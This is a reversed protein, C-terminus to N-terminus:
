VWFYGWIITVTLWGKRVTVLWLVKTWKVIEGSGPGSNWDFASPFSFFSFLFCGSIMKNKVFGREDLFKLGFEMQGDVGLEECVCDREREREREWILLCLCTPLLLCLCTPLMVRESWVREWRVWFLFLGKIKVCGIGIGIGIGVWLDCSEFLCVFM